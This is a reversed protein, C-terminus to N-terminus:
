LYEIARHINERATNEFKNKFYDMNYISDNNLFSQLLQKRKKRYIFSPVLKYEKRINREFKDYVETPTGLIALDIDVIIKEDNTKLKGNHLTAMILNFIREIGAKDYGQKELFSQAWKASDLENTKSLTKYIADHFWIALEMEDPREVFEIVADFHNLMAKIHQTTHYFRHKETYATKLADYYDLSPEFGMAKMLLKWRDKTM